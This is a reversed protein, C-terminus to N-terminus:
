KTLYDEFNKEHIVPKVKGNMLALTSNKKSMGFDKSIGNDKKMDLYYKDMFTLMKMEM